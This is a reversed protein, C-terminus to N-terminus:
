TFLLPLSEVLCSILFFYPTYSLWGQLGATCVSNYSENHQLHLSFALSAFDSVTYCVLISKVLDTFCLLCLKISQM